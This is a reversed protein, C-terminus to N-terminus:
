HQHSEAEPVPADTGCAKNLAEAEDADVATSPPDGADVGFV